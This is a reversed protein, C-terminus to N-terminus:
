SDHKDFCIMSAQRKPSADRRHSAFIPGDSTSSCRTCPATLDMQLLQPDPILSRWQAAVAHALDLFRYRPAIKSWETQSKFRSEFQQWLESSVEYCCGRISPGIGIRWTLPIGSHQNLLQHQIEQFCRQSIESWTGRWGSHIAAVAVTKTTRVSALIPVCDATVVRCEIGPTRTWQADATPVLPDSTQYRPTNSTLEILDTGHVQRNFIRFNPDDPDASFLPESQTGFGHRIESARDWLPSQFIM